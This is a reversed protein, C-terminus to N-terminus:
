CDKLVLLLKLEVAFEMPIHCTEKKMSIHVKNGPGNQSCFNLFLSKITCTFHTTPVAMTPFNKVTQSKWICKFRIKM